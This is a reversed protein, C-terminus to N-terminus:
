GSFCAGTTREFPARFDERAFQCGPGFSMGARFAFGGLRCRRGRHWRFPQVILPMADPANTDTATGVVPENRSGDKNEDEIMNSAKKWVDGWEANFSGLIAIVFEEMEVDEIMNSVLWRIAREDPGKRDETGEM